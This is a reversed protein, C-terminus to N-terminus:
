KRSLHVVWPRHGAAPKAIAKASRFEEIRDPCGKAGLLHESHRIVSWLFNSRCDGSPTQNLTCFGSAIQEDGIAIGQIRLADFENHLRDPTVIASETLSVFPGCALYDKPNAEPIHALVVKGIGERGDEYVSFHVIVCCDLPVRPRRWQGQWLACSMPRISGCRGLKAGTCGSTTCTSATMAATAGLTTDALATLARVRLRLRRSNACRNSAFATM